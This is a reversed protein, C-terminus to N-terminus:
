APAETEVARGEEAGVVRNRGGAKAEYMAQDAQKLLWGEEDGPVPACAAVGISVSIHGTPGGPNPLMRAGVEQRIKEAVLCAGTM